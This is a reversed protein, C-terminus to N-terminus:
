LSLDAPAPPLERSPLMKKKRGAREGRLRGRHLASLLLAWPQCSGVPKVMSLSGLQAAALCASKGKQWSRGEAM